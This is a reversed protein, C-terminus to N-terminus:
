AKATEAMETKVEQGFNEAQQLAIGTWIAFQDFPSL